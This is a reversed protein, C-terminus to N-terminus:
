QPPTPLARIKQSIAEVTDVFRPGPIMHKPQHLIIIQKNKVAHIEPYASWQKLLQEEGQQNWTDARVLDIIIDPNLHILKERAEPPHNCFRSVGVLREARDLQYIIEM